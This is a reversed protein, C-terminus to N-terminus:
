IFISWEIQAEELEMTFWFDPNAISTLRATHKYPGSNFEVKYPSNADLAVVFMYENYTQENPNRVMKDINKLTLVSNDESLSVDIKWYDLLGKDYNTYIYYTGKEGWGYGKNSFICLRRTYNVENKRVPDYLYMFKSYLSDFMESNYTRYSTRDKFTWDYRANLFQDRVSPMKIVAAGDQSTLDGNEPNYTFDQMKTGNVEVPEYFGFGNQRYIMRGQGLVQTTDNNIVRMIGQDTIVFPYQTGNITFYRRDPKQIADTMDIVNNIYERASGKLKYMKMNNGYKKGRLYITDQDASARLFEFEYDGGFGTALSSSNRPASWFHFPVNYSDFSLIVGQEKKVDYKSSVIMGAPWMRSTFVSVQSRLDVDDGKHFKATYAFGGLAEPHGPFYEMVWGSDSSQLLKTYEAVSKNLRQAASEPFVDDVENTCSSIATGMCLAAAIYFIIKKM